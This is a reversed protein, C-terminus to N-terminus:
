RLSAGAEALAQPTVGLADAAATLDAEHAALYDLIAGLTAPDGLGDRLMEPTLGTLALFRESRADDGLM